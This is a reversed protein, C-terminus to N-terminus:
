GVLLQPMDEYCPIGFQTLIELQKAMAHDYHICDGGVVLNVGAHYLRNITAKTDEFQDGLLNRYLDTFHWLITLGVHIRSNVVLDLEEDNFHHGHEIGDIGSEIAYGVGKGGNLHATVKVGFNHAEEIAVRIEERSFHSTNLQVPVGSRRGGSIFLKIAKVEYDLNMRVYKRVEEVGDAIVSVDKGHGHSTTIGPGSTLIRPGPVLNCDFAQKYGIDVFNREGLIRVTTVGDRLEQRGYRTAMTQCYQATSTKYRKIEEVYNIDPDTPDPHSLHDHTNIMGPMITCGDMNIVESGNPVEVQGRTGIAQIKDGEVIIVGNPIPKGDTCDLITTGL